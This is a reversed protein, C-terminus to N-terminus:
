LDKMLENFKQSAEKKKTKTVHLYVRRTIEDDAHGLREMIEELGVGAEALLSTHTHRLSHPTLEENLGALRLLRTMRNGILKIYLPYGPHRDTNVFIFNKDHWSMKYKSKIAEIRSILAALDSIVDPAMDIVRKSSKTKPTQLKYNQTNNSPNYYTKTISIENTELYIDPLKLACLEGIRMGSYALTRFIEYDNDRGNQKAAHLFLALQEKELFKPIETENELEEVTKRIRPVKAFQTPDDQRLKLEIAKTFIMRGTGHIGALTHQAYGAQKLGLDDAYRGQSLDTLLKQYSKPTVDNLKTKEGILKTLCGSEHKRVRVTSAKVDGTDDYLKLWEAVFDKFLIASAQAYTKNAIDAEIKAAALQAAKKTAFGSGPIQQRKGHIDRGNEVLFSWKKNRKYICAM